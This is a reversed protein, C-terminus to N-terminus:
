KLDEPWLNNAKLDKYEQSKKFEWVPFQPNNKQFISYTTVAIPTKRGLADRLKASDRVWPDNVVLLDLDSRVGGIVNLGMKLAISEVLFRHDNGNDDWNMLQTFSVTQGASLTIHSWEPKSLFAAKALDGRERKEEARLTDSAVKKVRALMEAEPPLSSPNSYRFKGAASFGSQLDGKRVQGPHADLAALMARPNSYGCSKVAEVLVQGALTADELAGHPSSTQSTRGDYDAFSRDLSFFDALDPLGNKSTIWPLKKAILMTDWYEFDALGQFGAEFLTDLIKNVDNTANHLVWPRNGIIKAIRPWQDALTEAKRILKEDIGHTRQEYSGMSFDNEPRVYSRYTEVVEGNQFLAVGIECISTSDSSDTWEIDVAVFDESSIQDLSRPISTKSTKAPRSRQVSKKDSLIRGNSKTSASERDLAAQLEQVLQEFLKKQGSPISVEQSKRGSKFHFELRGTRFMGPSSFTFHSLDSVKFKETKFKTESVQKTIHINGFDDFNLSSGM